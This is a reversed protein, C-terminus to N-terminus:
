QLMNSDLAMNVLKDAKKNQERPVHFYRIPINIQSEKERIKYVFELLRQNKIKFIGNIQSVLLLSDLFFHITKHKGVFEKNEVLWSLAAVVASYEAVNNTAVGITKGLTYLTNNKNDTVFVGIAARGPNGRAGGDTFVRIM